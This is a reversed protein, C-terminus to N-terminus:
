VSLKDGRNGKQINGQLWAYSWSLFTHLSMLVSAVFGHTGDRYGRLFIYNKFFKGLSFFLIKSFSVSKGANLNEQAHLRFYCNLKEIFKHLTLATNHILPTNIEGLNGNIKWVEHVRRVWKGSNKLGVRVLKDNGMETAIMVHNLFNVKRTVYYGAFNNNGALRKIEDVFNENVTEDSDIYFVWDYSCKTLAFNRQASFDGNLTHNFYRIGLRKCINETQDCSNDDIALVEDFEKLSQYLPGIVSGSNHTLIVVSIKSM